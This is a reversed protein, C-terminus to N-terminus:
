KKINLLAEKLKRAVEKTAEAVITDIDDNSEVNVNIDGFNLGGIGAIQPQPAQAVQYQVHPQKYVMKNDIQAAVERKMDNVSQMHNLIKTGKSMYTLPNGKHAGIIPVTKRDSLEWGRENVTSFGGRYSNTGSANEDVKSGFGYRQKMVNVTATWATGVIQGLTGLLGGLKGEAETTNANVKINNEPKLRNQSNEVTNLKNNATDTLANVAIEKSPPMLNIATMVQDMNTIAGTADSKIEIPTGNLNIIGSRVGDTSIKRKDLSAVIEDNASVIQGKSNVHAGSLSKMAEVTSTNLDTHTKGLKELENGMEATYAGCKRSTEDYIGTIEGSNSDVAVQLNTWAKKSADYVRYNGSKTIQEIGDYTEKIKNMVKQSSIDKNTFEEGTYKNIQGELNPNQKYVTDLNSNYLDNQSKIKAAKSKELETLTSELKGRKAADLEPNSLENKLNDIYTNYKAKIDVIADDREKASDKLLKSADKIDLNEARAKFENKAYNIEDQNGGTAELEIRAREQQKEKIQRIDEDLLKGHDAIAKEKINYIEDQLKQEATVQTDYKQSFYDLTTQEAESINGDDAFLKELASHTEKKKEEITKISNDFMEQVKSDFEISEKESIAGDLNIKNILLQFDLLSKSSEELKKKFDDGINEGFDKYVLGLKQMESKSKTLNGHLSNMIKEIPGLEEVTTSTAKKMLSSNAKVAIGIAGVTGIVAAGAPSFLVPLLKSALGISKIGGAIETTEKVVSGGKFLKVVNGLGSISNSIAGVKSFVAISAGLSGLTIALSKITDTHNSIYDVTSMIKDSIAPMKGILWTIFEKTYPALKTALDIKMTEAAGSLEEIQGKLNDLRTESMAKAAGDSNYIANTLKNYDSESANIISLMGSMAEKGFLDAAAAAQTAEDLGGMKERLMDIVSKLSKMKGDTDTLSLNYNDMVGAMTDTPSVMNVIANKLATGAMSGKIGSNAMLGLAISTDEASYKMAGATSAVYKFSEGLLHVNTNANSSASALIDSFKGSDSAQMGFATLADTVIDSTMALDEGSAAALNMIGEIGGLMQDTKWGAMAMYNLAEASETASFVSKAGMEKAKDTLKVLDEKTSQSTAQVTSMASEFGTFTKMASGVGLGGLAVSGALGITIIKKAGTKIWGNIKNQAKNIVSTAEDKAELKVKAKKNGLEEAKSKVRSIPESATDDASVKIKNKKNNLDDSKSKIKDITVSAADNIKVKSTFTRNLKDTKSKVKDVTTSANDTVKIKTTVTKNLKDSKSKVKDITSSANDTIKVSPSAKIKDLAKM